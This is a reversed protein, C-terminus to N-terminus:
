SSSSAAVAMARSLMDLMRRPDDAHVHVQTVPVDRSIVRWVVAPQSLHLVIETSGAVPFAATANKLLPGLFGPWQRHAPFASEIERVPIVMGGLLGVRLHLAQGRIAHPYTILAAWTSAVFWVAYLELVILVVKLWSWPLLLAGLFALVPTEVVTLGLLVGMLLTMDSAYPFELGSRHRRKRTLKGLAGWAHVEFLVLRAARRPIVAALRDEFSGTIIKVANNARRGRRVAYVLLLALLAMTAVESAIAILLSNM